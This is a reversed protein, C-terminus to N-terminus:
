GCTAREPSVSLQSPGQLFGGGAATGRGEGLRACRQPRSASGPPSVPGRDVLRHPRAKRRYRTAGGILDIGVTFGTFEVVTDPISELKDVMSWQNPMLFTAGGAGVASAYSVSIGVVPREEHTLPDVISTRDLFANRVPDYVRVDADFHGALPTGQHDSVAAEATSIVGARVLEARRELDGLVRRAAQEDRCGTAVIQVVGAGDRYKAVYYPSEFVVREAGDEGVTVPATRSKGKRDKWRAFREGKRVFTAAGAPLPKTYTKRFVTGM